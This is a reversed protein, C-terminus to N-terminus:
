KDRAYGIRGDYSRDTGVKVWNKDGYAVARIDSFAINNDAVWNKGDSSYAVLRFGVAVWRDNGWIIDMIDHGGFATASVEIWNIGDTSYAMISDNGGILWVGNGYAICNIYQEYREFITINIETWNEVDTSYAIKDPYYAMAGGYGVAIWKGDGYTMCKIGFEFIDLINVEVWNEGDYSYVLKGEGYGDKYAIWKNDNYIIRNYKNGFEADRIRTWNEVDTSYAMTYDNCTIWKKNGYAVSMLVGGRFIDSIDVEVWNECDYSYVLKNKIGSGVAVWKNDGYAVGWYGGNTNIKNIDINKWNLDNLVINEVIPINNDVPINYDVVPINNDVLKDTGSVTNKNKNWCSTCLLAFIIIVRFFVRM